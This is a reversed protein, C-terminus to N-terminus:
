YRVKSKMNYEKISVFDPYDFYLICLKTKNENEIM